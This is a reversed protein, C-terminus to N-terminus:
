SRASPGTSGAAAAEMATIQTVQQVLAPDHTGGLGANHPFIVTGTATNNGHVADAGILLPIQHTAQAAATIFGDILPGWASVTSGGSPPEYGGPAFIAGPALTKVENPTLAPTPGLPAMVMQASKEQRNMQGVLTTAM